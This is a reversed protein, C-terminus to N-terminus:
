VPQATSDKAGSQRDTQRHGGSPAIPLRVRSPVNPKYIFLPQTTLLYGDSRCITQYPLHFFIYM